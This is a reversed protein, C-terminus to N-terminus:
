RDMTVSTEGFINRYNESFVRKPIIAQTRRLRLAYRECADKGPYFIRDLPNRKKYGSLLSRFPHLRM